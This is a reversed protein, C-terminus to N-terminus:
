SPSDGPLAGGASASICSSAASSARNRSTSRSGVALSPVSPRGTPRWTGMSWPQWVLSPTMQEPVAGRPRLISIPPGLHSQEPEVRLAVDMVSLWSPPIRGSLVVCDMSAAWRREYWGPHAARLVEFRRRDIGLEPMDTLVHAGAPVNAEIWDLARDMTRPQLFSRTNEIAKPLLVAAIALALLVGARPWRRAVVAFGLAALVAVVGLASVVLRAWRAEATSLVGVLVAAYSLGPLWARWHRRAALLGLAALPVGVLGVGGALTRLYFSAIELFRPAMGGGRYHYTWNIVVGGFFSAPTLVAYPTTLVWVALAALGAVATGQWRSGPRLWRALLYAPLLLAGTFKVAATAGLAVGAWL